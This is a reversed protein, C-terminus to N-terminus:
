KRVLLTLTTRETDKNIMTGFCNVVYAGPRQYLETRSDYYVEESVVKGNIRYQHCSNRDKKRYSQYIFEYYEKPKPFKM